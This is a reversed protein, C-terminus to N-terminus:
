VSGGPGAPYVGLRRLRHRQRRSLRVREDVVPNPVNEGDENVTLGDWVIATMAVRERHHDVAVRKLLRETDDDMDGSVDARYDAWLRDVNERADAPLDDYVDLADARLFQLLGSQTTEAALPDGGGNASSGDGPTM